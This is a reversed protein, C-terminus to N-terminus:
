FASKGREPEGPPTVGADSDAGLRQIPQNMYTKLAKFRSERDGGEPPFGFLFPPARDQWESLREHM